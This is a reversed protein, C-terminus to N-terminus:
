SVNLRSCTWHTNIGRSVPEQNKDWVVQQLQICLAFGHQTKQIQFSYVSWVCLHRVKISLHTLASSHKDRSVACANATNNPYFQEKLARGPKTQSQIDRKLLHGPPNRPTWSSVQAWVGTRLCCPLIGPCCWRCCRRAPLFAVSSGGFQCCFRNRM